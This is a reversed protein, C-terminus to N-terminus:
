AAFEPAACGDRLGPAGGSAGLPAARCLSGTYERFSELYRLFGETDGEPPPPGPPAVLQLSRPPVGCAGGAASPQATATLGPADRASPAAAGPVGAGCSSGRRASACPQGELQGCRERAQSLQRRLRRNEDQLHAVRTSLHQYAPPTSVGTVLDRPTTPYPGVAVAAASALSGDRYRGPEGISGLGRGGGRSARAGAAHMSGDISGVLGEGTCRATECFDDLSARPCDLGIFGQGVTSRDHLLLSAEEELSDRLQMGSPGFTRGPEALSDESDVSDM